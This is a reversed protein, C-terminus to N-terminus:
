PIHAIPPFLPSEFDVTGSMNAVAFFLRFNTAFNSSHIKLTSRGRNGSLLALFQGSVM